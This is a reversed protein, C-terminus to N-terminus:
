ATTAPAAGWDRDEVLFGEIQWVGDRRTWVDPNRFSEAIEFFRARDIGVYGCFADIDEWPTEDGLERLTAIAQERTIRGARIELSLNDYSRTFGFKHWKLFHHISILDDDIDAFAYTGTRAREDEEFGQASAIEFTVQPDWRFFHGLFVADVGADELQEDSPGFYPALDRRTLDDSVWDEATTGALVGSNAVWESDLRSKGADPGHGVYERASNEGWVVLPVGFGAAVQLPINFIAMHMPIATTGHAEFTRLLFRSEVRPDVQFDIHDVGLGILNDLNRQGIETRTPPKWTVALVNLGHELCTIVQWHSDKGGSVPVVCDWRRELARASKALRAFEDRRAAWDVDADGEGHAHCASCVGDDAIVLGPRTDPLVCNACYRM